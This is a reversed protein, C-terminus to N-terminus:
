MQPERAYSEALRQSAIHSVTAGTRQAEAALDRVLLAPLRLEARLVDTDPVIRTRRRDFSTSPIEIM